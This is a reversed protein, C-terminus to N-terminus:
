QHIEESQTSAPEAPEGCTVSVPAGDQETPVHEIGLWKRTPKGLLERTWGSMSRVRNNFEPVMDIWFPQMVTAEKWPQRHKRNHFHPQHPDLPIGAIVIHTCELKLACQVGMLGSSGGKVGVKRVPFPLTPVTASPYTWCCLPDALHLQRRKKLEGPIRDIHFTVLHHVTPYTMWIDKVAIFLDPKFLRIAAEIDDYVCQAGGMVLARKTTLVM